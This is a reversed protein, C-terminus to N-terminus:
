SLSSLSNSRVIEIFKFYNMAEDIDGVLNGEQHKFLHTVLDDTFGAEILVRHCVKCQAIREQNIGM